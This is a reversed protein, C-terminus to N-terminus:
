NKVVFKASPGRGIKKIKGEISLERLLTTVYSTSLESEKIIQSVTKSEDLLELLSDKKSIKKEKTQIPSQNETDVSEFIFGNTTIPFSVFACSGFRNKTTEIDRITYDEENRSMLMTCDCSHPLLTGGKYTGTKTFHLIVGIVVEYQKATTILKTTIYEEKQNRNLSKKTTIAPLSDIIVFNFNHKVIM